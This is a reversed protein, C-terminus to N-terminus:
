VVVLQTTQKEWVCAVDGIQHAHQLFQRCLKLLCTTFDNFVASNQMGFLLALLHHQVGRLAVFHHVFHHHRCARM